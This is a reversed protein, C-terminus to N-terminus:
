PIWVVEGKRTGVLFDQINDGAAGNVLHRHECFPVLPARFLRFSMVDIVLRSSNSVMVATAAAQRATGRDAMTVSATSPMIQSPQMTATRDASSSTGPTVRTCTLRSVPSITTM